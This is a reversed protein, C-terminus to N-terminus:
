SAPESEDLLSRPASAARTRSARARRDLGLLRLDRPRRPHRGGVLGHALDPGTSAPPGPLTAGPRSFALTGLREVDHLMTAVDERDLTERELLKSALRELAERHEELLRTAEGYAYDCIQSQEQDRQRKTDESLAFNDARM